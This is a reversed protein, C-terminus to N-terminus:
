QKSIAKRLIAFNSKETDASLGNQCYKPSEMNQEIWERFYSVRNFQSYKPQDRFITNTNPRLQTTKLNEYFYMTGLSSVGILTHQNNHLFTLPGGSDGHGIGIDGGFEDNHTRLHSGHNIKLPTVKVKVELLM